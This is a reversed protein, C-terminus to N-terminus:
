IEEYFVMQSPGGMLGDVMRVKGSGVGAGIGNLAGQLDDADVDYIAVYTPVGEPAKGLQAGSVKFRRAGTFGPLACIDPLHVNDYWDNYEAERDPAPQTHVVLVGKPM